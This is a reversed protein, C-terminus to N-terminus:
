SIKLGYFFLPLIILFRKVIIELSEALTSERLATVVILFFYAVILKSIANKKVGQALNNFRDHILFAALCVVAWINTTTMPFAIIAALLLIALFLYRDKLSSMARELM